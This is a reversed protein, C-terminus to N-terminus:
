ENLIQFPDETQLVLPNYGGILDSYWALNIYTENIARAKRRYENIHKKCHWALFLLLGVTLVSLVMLFFGKISFLLQIMSLINFSISPSAGDHVPLFHLPYIVTLLTIPALILIARSLSKMDSINNTFARSIVKHRRVVSQVRLSINDFEKEFANIHEWNRLKSFVKCSYLIDMTVGSNILKDLEHVFNEPYYLQTLTQRIFEVKTEHSSYALDKLDAEVERFDFEEFIRKDHWDFNMSDLRAKLDISEDILASSDFVLRDYDGGESIIRSVFFALIVGIM